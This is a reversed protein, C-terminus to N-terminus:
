QAVPAQLRKAGKLLSAQSDPPGARSGSHPLGGVAKLREAESWWWLVRVLAARSTDCELPGQPGLFLALV